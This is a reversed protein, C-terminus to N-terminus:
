DFRVGAKPAVELLHKRSQDYEEANKMHEIMLPPSQPLAALRKLYTVYDLEGAGLVVERFHVQMEVDWTLDKAHCSVIWPGLKDFCENLVDRNRYFRVPSNIINCPDLHVGFGDRGIAQVLAVYSDASDPLSWGMMEYCFKARKPQVADIIKRANEVAADFFRPSLNDPHPGYWIEPHFSGAIDVCCRAGIEDALALGDTVRQLNEARKAPDSELLNCWRGVEAIVVDHRAFAREIDRIREKDNLGVTPCYAARYGLQRHALALKEPDQPAKFVPAGLRIWPWSDTPTAEGASAPLRSGAWAAAGAAARLFGRRTTKNTRM